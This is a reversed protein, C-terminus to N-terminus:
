KIKYKLNYRVGAQLTMFHLKYDEDLYYYEYVLEKDQYRQTPDVINSFGYQFSANVFLSLRRVRYSIDLGGSIFHDFPIRTLTRDMENKVITTVGTKIPLGDEIVQNSEYVPVTLLLSNEFKTFYNLEYGVYPSVIIKNSLNFQYNYQFGLSLSKIDEGFEVLYDETYGFFVRKHGMQHFNGSMVFRHNKWPMYGVSLGFSPKFEGEYFSNLYDLEEYISYTKIREVFTMRVGLGVGFDWVPRASHGELHLMFDEELIETRPEFYKNNDYIKKYWPDLEEVRDLEILNRVIMVLINEKEIKNFECASETELGELIALSQNFNGQDFLKEANELRGLCGSQAFNVTAAFLVLTLITWRLHKM